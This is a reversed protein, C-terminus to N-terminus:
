TVIPQNRDMNHQNFSKNHKIIILFIFYIQKLLMIFAWHFNKPNTLNYIWFSLQRYQSLGLLLENLSKSVSMALEDEVVIMQIM